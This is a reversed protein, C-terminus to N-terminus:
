QKVKESGSGSRRRAHAPQSAALTPITDDISLASREDRQYFFESAISGDQHHVIIQASGDRRALAKAHGVGDSQARLMESVRRGDRDFVEWGGNVSKVRYVPGKSPPPSTVPHESKSVRPRMIAVLTRAIPDASLGDTARARAFHRVIDSVGVIGLSKGEGDLIPVRRIQHEQMLAAVTDLTDDPTASVLSKSAAVSVPIESLKRGQTYAAMCIDRDTVIGVTRGRDDIVPVAGCDHEWMIQAARNLTDSPSCTFADTTMLEAIKM